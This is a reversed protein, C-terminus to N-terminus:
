IVLPARYAMGASRKYCLCRIFSERVVGDPIAPIAPIAPIILFRGKDPIDMKVRGQLFGSHPYRDGDFFILVGFTDSVNHDEEIDFLHEIDDIIDPNSFRTM